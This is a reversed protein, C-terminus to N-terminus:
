QHKELRGLGALVSFVDASASLVLRRRWSKMIACRDIGDVAHVTGVIRFVVAQDHPTQRAVYRSAAVPGSEGTGVPRVVLDALNHLRRAADAHVVVDALALTELAIDDHVPARMQRRVDALPPAIG